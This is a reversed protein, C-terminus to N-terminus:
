PKTEFESLLRAVIPKVSDIMEQAGFRAEMRTIGKSLAPGLAISAQDLDPTSKELAKLVDGASEALGNVLLM